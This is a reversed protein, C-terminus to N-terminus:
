AREASSLVANMVTEPDVPKVLHLNFGANRTRERDAESGWGTVAILRSVLGDSTARIRRAVELGDIDPLGLDLVVVAPRMELYRDLASSGDNAVVVPFGRMRLLEALTGAADDNDDVVLVTPRQPVVVILEASQDILSASKPEPVADKLHPLSVVFTTGRYLGESQAQISGGHLEVLRKTISLGIGLGGVSVPLAKKIPSFRDFVQALMEPAVGIGTDSVRMAVDEAIELEIQIRGHPETYKAANDLLNTLIQVLRAADGQVMAPESPMSVAVQHRRLEMLPQTAELAQRVIDRLDLPGTKLQVDDRTVRSMDLLDDLLRAMQASQREIIVRAREASTADASRALAAAAYRIPAMPNRLEHALTAIFEDKRRSELRLQDEAYKRDTVDTSTGVWQVVRGLEDKLPVARGWYWRYGGDKGRYRFEAEFPTGLRTAASWKDRLQAVDDPHALSEWDTARLEELTLGTYETWRQNVHVARGEGDTSWVFDPAAEGLTRYLAESRRLSEETRRIESVDMSAGVLGVVRESADKVPDINAMLHRVVGEHEFKVSVREGTGGNFVRDIAAAYAKDGAIPLVEDIRKGVVDESGLVAQPNYVWTYRREADCAWARIPSGRLAVDFRQEALRSAELAQQRETIDITVGTVCQAEGDPTRGIRAHVEICRPEDSGPKLMRAIFTYEDQERNKLAGEVIARTRDRDEPHLLQWYEAEVNAVRAGFIREASPDVSVSHSSVDWRWTTM